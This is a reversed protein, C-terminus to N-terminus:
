HNRSASKESAGGQTDSSLSISGSRPTSPPSSQVVASEARMRKDWPDSDQSSLNDRSRRGLSSAVRRLVPTGGLARSGSDRSSDSSPIEGSRKGLSSAGRAQVQTGGVPLSSEEREEGPRSSRPRWRPPLPEHDDEDVELVDGGEEVEIVAVWENDPLLHVVQQAGYDPEDDSCVEIPLM